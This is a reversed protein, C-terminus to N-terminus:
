LRRKAGDRRLSKATADHDRQEVADVVDFLQAVAVPGLPDQRPRYPDFCLL